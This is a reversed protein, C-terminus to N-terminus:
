FRFYLFTQAAGSAMKSVAIWFVVLSGM